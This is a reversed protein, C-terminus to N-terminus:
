LGEREEKNFFILNLNSLFSPFFLSCLLFTLLLVIPFLLLGLLFDLIPTTFKKTNTSKSKLILIFNSIFNRFIPENEPGAGKSPPDKKTWFATLGGGEKKPNKKKRKKKKKKKKEKGKIRKKIVNKKKEQKKM